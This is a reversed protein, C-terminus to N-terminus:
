PNIKVDIESFEKIGKNIFSLSFTKGISGPQNFGYKKNGGEPVGNNVREQTLNLRDPSIYLTQGSQFRDMCNSSNIDWTENNDELNSIVSRNIIWSMYKYGEFGTKPRLLIDTDKVLLTDGGLHQIMMGDKLSYIVNVTVNPSNSIGPFVECLIIIGLIILLVGIFIFIIKKM